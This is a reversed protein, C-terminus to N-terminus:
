CILITDLGINRKVIRRCPLLSLITRKRLMLIMEGPAPIAKEEPSKTVVHLPLRESAADLRQDLKLNQQEM